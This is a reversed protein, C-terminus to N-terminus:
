KVESIDSDQVESTDQPDENPDISNKVSLSSHSEGM